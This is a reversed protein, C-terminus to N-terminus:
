GRAASWNTRDEMERKDMPSLGTIKNEPGGKRENAMGAGAWGPGDADSSLMEFDDQRPTEDRDRVIGANQQMM